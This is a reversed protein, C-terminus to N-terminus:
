HMSPSHVDCISHMPRCGDCKMQRHSRVCITWQSHVDDCFRRRIRVLGCINWRVIACLTWGSLRNRSRDCIKSRISSHNQLTAVIAYCCNGSFYRCNPAFVSRVLHYCLNKSALGCLQGLRQALTLALSHTIGPM